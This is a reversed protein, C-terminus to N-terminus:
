AFSRPSASHWFIWSISDATTRATPQGPASARAPLASTAPRAALAAPARVGPAAAPGAPRRPPLLQYGVVAVAIVCLGGVVWPNGLLKM